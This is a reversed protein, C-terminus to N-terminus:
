RSRPHTPVIARKWGPIRQRELFAVLERRHNNRSLRRIVAYIQELLQGAKRRAREDHRRTWRRSWEDFQGHLERIEAIGREFRDHRRRNRRARTIRRRMASIIPLGRALLLKRLPM